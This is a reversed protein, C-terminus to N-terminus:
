LINNLKNVDFGNWNDGNPLVVVPLSQYGLDIVQQRYDSHESTNLEQFKINHENLWRETMRCRPCGNKVYVKIM